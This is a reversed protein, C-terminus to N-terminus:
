TMQESSVCGGAFLYKFIQSHLSPLWSCDSFFLICFFLLHSCLNAAHLHLENPKESHVMVDQSHLLCRKVCSAPKAPKPCFENQGQQKKHPPMYKFVHPPCLSSRYLKHTWISTNAGQVEKQLICHHWDGTYNQRKPFGHYIGKREELVAVHNLQIVGQLVRQQGFVVVSVRSGVTCLSGDM